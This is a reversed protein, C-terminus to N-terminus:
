APILIEAVTGFGVALFDASDKHDLTARGM